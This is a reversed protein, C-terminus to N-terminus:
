IKKPAKAIRVETNPQGVANRHGLNIDNASRSACSYLLLGNGGRLNRGTDGAIPVSLGNEQWTGLRGCVSRLELVALISFMIAAMSM